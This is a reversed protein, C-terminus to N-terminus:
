VQQVRRPDIGAGMALILGEAVAEIGLGVILQNIVKFGHGM